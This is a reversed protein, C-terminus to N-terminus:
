NKIFKKTTNGQKIIYIGAAPVKDWSFDSSESKYIEQGQMNYITIINSNIFKDSSTTSGINSTTQIIAVEDLFFAHSTSWTVRTNGTANITTVFETWEGNTMTVTNNALEGKDASLSLTLNDNGIPACKFSITASGEIDITPSTVSVSKASTTGFRACRDGGKMYSSTWGEVDPSFAANAFNHALLPAVFQGDNGGTGQCKDFTENLLYGEQSASLNYNTFNFAATKDEAIAMNSLSINMLYKGDTNAHHTTAAPTSQSNLTNNGNYPWADGYENTQEKMNDAPIITIHEYENYEDDNTNPMNLDWLTQDYNIHNVIIGSSALGADWGEQQRNEIIYYEDSFGPNTFKYANGGNAVTQMDTVVTNEKLEIPEIWGAVWKEYATYGAPCFSNGNYNGGCMLDWRGMGYFGKYETDYVDPYGLCHSFEHCITGIGDVKTDTQLENSCAYVYVNKGGYATASYLSSKHPWITNTDGGSAEGRGAYIVFVMEVEGDDDWDYPSFDVGENAANQCVASVMGRPNKDNGRDDNGGYNEYNSLTYPGAIDFTLNFQGNSQDRFYDKVSGRFDGENFGEENAVRTYFAKPDDMSFKKNAFQALLILCRKDGKYSVKQPVKGKSPSRMLGKSTLRIGGLENRLTKAQQQLRDMDAFVLRDNTLRYNTGSRDQWYKLFEDGKLQVEIEQGNALKLKKWIGPKAPVAHLSITATLSLLFLIITKKNM